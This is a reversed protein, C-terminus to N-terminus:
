FGYKGSLYQYMTQINALSHNGAYIIVESIITNTSESDDRAGINWQGSGFEIKPVVANNLENTKSILAGTVYFSAINLPNSASIDITIACNVAKNQNYPAVKVYDQEAYTSDTGNSVYFTRLVQGAGPFEDDTRIELWPRNDGLYGKGTGFLRNNNNLNWLQTHVSYITIKSGVSATLSPGYLSKGTAPYCNFNIAPRGNHGAFSSSYYPMFVTYPQSIHNGNGSMDFWQSVSGTVDYTVGQGADYWAVLGTMIPLPNPLSTVRQATEGVELFTTASSGSFTLLVNGKYTSDVYKDGHTMYLSCSALGLPTPNSQSLMIFATGSGSMSLTLKGRKPNAALITGVSSTLFQTGSVLSVSSSLFPTHITRSRKSIPM